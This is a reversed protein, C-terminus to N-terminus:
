ANRELHLGVARDSVAALDLRLCVYRQYVRGVGVEDGGAPQEQGRSLSRLPRVHIPWVIGVSTVTGAVGRHPPVGPVPQDPGPPRPCCRFRDAVPNRAARVGVVLVSLYRIM